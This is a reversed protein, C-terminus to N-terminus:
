RVERFFLDFFLLENQKPAENMWLVLEYRRNEINPEMENQLCTKIMKISLNAKSLVKRTNTIHHSSLKWSFFCLSKQDSRTFGGVIWRRFIVVFNKKLTLRHHTKNSECRLRLRQNSDQKGVLWKRRSCKEFLNGYETLVLSLRCRRRRSVFNRFKKCCWSIARCGCCGKHSKIFEFINWGSAREPVLFNLSFFSFLVAVTKCDDISKNNSNHSRAINSKSNTNPSCSLRWAVQHVTDSCFRIHWRWNAVIVDCLTRHVYSIGVKIRAGFVFVIPEFILKCCFRFLFFFGVRIEANCFYFDIVALLNRLLVKLQTWVFSVLITTHTHARTHPHSVSFPRRNCSFLYTMHLILTSKMNLLTIYFSGVNKTSKVSFSVVVVVVAITSPEMQFHDIADSCAVPFATYM